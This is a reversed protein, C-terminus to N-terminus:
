TSDINLSADSLMWVKLYVLDAPTSGEPVVVSYTMKKILVFQIIQREKFLKVWTVQLICWIRASKLGVTHNSIPLITVLGKKWSKDEFPGNQTMENQILHM